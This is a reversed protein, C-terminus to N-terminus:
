AEQARIGSMHLYSTSPLLSAASVSKIRMLVTIQKCGKLVTAVFVACLLTYPLSCLVSHKTVWRTDATNQKQEVKIGHLLQVQSSTKKNNM